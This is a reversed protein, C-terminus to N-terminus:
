RGLSRCGEHCRRSRFPGPAAQKGFDDRGDWRLEQSLGAQLPMPPKNGLVGAALHRIVKGQSDLIAVEVDTPASVDFNIRVGDDLREAKPGDTFRIEGATVSSVGIVIWLMTLGFRM